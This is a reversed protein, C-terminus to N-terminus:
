GRDGVIVIGVLVSVIEILWLLMILMVVGFLLVGVWILVMWSVVKMLILLRCFMFLFRNILVVEDLVGVGFVGFRFLM